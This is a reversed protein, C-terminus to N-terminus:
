PAMETGATSNLFKGPPQWPTLYRSDVKLIQHFFDPHNKM